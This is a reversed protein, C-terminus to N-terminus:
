RTGSSPNDYGFMTKKEVKKIYINQVPNRMDDFSSRGACADIKLGAM